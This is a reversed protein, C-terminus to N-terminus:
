FPIDNEPTKEGKCVFKYKLQPESVYPKEYGIVIRKCDETDGPLSAHFSLRMVSGGLLPLVPASYVRTYTEPLDEVEFEQHPLRITDIAELIPTLESWQSILTNYWVSVYYGENDWRETYEFTVNFPSLLAELAHCQPTFAKALQLKTQYKQIAEQLSDYLNGIHVEIYSSPPVVEFTENLM